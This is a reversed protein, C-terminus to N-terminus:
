TGAPLNWTALVPAPLGSIRLEMQGSAPGAATFRLQGQRHHGSPGDGSWNAASWARGDVRLSSAKAVDFALDASHTDFQVNFTAGGSDITLPQIAVEVAGATVTRAQLSSTGPRSAQGGCGAVLVLIGAAAVVIAPGKVRRM